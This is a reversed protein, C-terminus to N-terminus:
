DDLITAKIRKIRKKDVSEIKFQINKFTIIDNKNSQDLM